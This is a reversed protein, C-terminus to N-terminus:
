RTPTGGGGACDVCLPSEPKVQLRAEGIEDGCRACEGYEGKAIRRLAQQVALLRQQSRRRLEIAMSQSLIADQRTLRGIARDPEVPKTQDDASGLSEEIESRLAELVAQYHALRAEDM